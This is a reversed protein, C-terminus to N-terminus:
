ANRIATIALDTLNEGTHPTGSTDIIDVLHVNGMITTVCICVIPQNNVNSWGDLSMCVTQNKLDDYCNEMELQHVKNLLNGSLDSKSHPFYGPRLMEMLIKFHLNEVSRFSTTTAFYM